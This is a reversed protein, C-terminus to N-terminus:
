NWLKLVGEAIVVSFCIGIECIQVLYGTTDGTIGGIERYIIYKYYVFIFFAIIASFIGIIWNIAVMGSVSLVLIFVLIWFSVKKNSMSNFIQVLGCAKANKFKLVSMGAFCRSIVYGCGLIMVGDFSIETLLAFYLLFYVSARIIAFAGSNSDKMIELKKKKPQHSAFADCTDCFGDMHIGGTISIPIWVGIGAFIINSFGLADCLYKSYLILFGILLGVFPFFCLTYKMNEESWDAKPMPIKSYMSFAIIFGNLIKM